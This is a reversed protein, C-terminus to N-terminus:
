EVTSKQQLICLKLVNAHRIDPKFFHIKHQNFLAGVLKKNASYGRIAGNSAGFNKRTQRSHKTYLYYLQLIRCLSKSQIQSNKEVFIAKTSKRVIKRRNTKTEFTAIHDMKLPFSFTFSRNTQNKLSFNYIIYKFINTQKETIRYSLQM